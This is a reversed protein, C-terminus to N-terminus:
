RRLLAISILEEMEMALKDLYPSFVQIEMPQMGNKFNSLEIMIQSLLFVLMIMEQISVKAELTQYELMKLLLFKDWKFTSFVLLIEGSLWRFRLDVKM